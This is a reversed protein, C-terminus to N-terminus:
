GVSLLSATRRRTLGQGDGIGVRKVAHERYTPVARDSLHKAVVGDSATANMQQCSTGAALWAVSDSAWVRWHRLAPCHWGHFIFAFCGDYDSYWLACTWEDVADCPVDSNVDSLCACHYCLLVVTPVRTVRADRRSAIGDSRQQSSRCERRVRETKLNRQCANTYPSCKTQHRSSTVRSDKTDDSTQSVCMLSMNHCARKHGYKHMYTRNKIQTTRHL